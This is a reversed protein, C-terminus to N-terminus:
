LCMVGVGSVVIQPDCLSNSRASISGTVRQAAALQRAVAGVTCDLDYDPHKVVSSRAQDSTLMCSQRTPRTTALAVASCPTEPEIGPDPLTCGHKRNKSFKEITARLIPSIVCITFLLHVNYLPMVHRLSCRQRGRRPYFAHRQVGNSPKSQKM